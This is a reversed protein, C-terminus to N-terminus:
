MDYNTIRIVDGNETTGIKKSLVDWLLTHWCLEPPRLNGSFGYIYLDDRARTMAVYLLRFYEETDHQTVFSRIEAFEPSFGDPKHPTWIWVPMGESRDHTINYINETKSVSVTDILFVARSQLGKSGHVTVIRVGDGSDLNRKIESNGTIFWKIFHRLTGPQTREYALCITIFEELPDIVQVGLAAIINERVNHNNLVYTFFNYPGDVKARAIYDQLRTYIDSDGTKLVDLVTCKQANKDQAKRKTNETNRVACIKYVQMDNLGFLPSKLVCCLSYDDTLDTCFRILNMFDRIVPYDPLIIRDTGAVPINRRKLENTMSVALPARQQLLIMIDNPTYKKDHILNEIKDAIGSIYKKRAIATELDGASQVKHLEVIGKDHVRFCKHSNNVFGTLRAVDADGFFMDVTRLIPEVSRFSQTLPVEMIARANNSIYKSIEDRSRAFANPDAGQFGYISQKTDGVVFLSRPLGQTDGEAFFDCSLMRLLEWQLPATDQAEDVLIHSLSLDMQSLVWGMTEPNSFLRHTYLILDEFDLVNHSQKLEQYQKAFAASLDFLAITDACIKENVMSINLEFVREKEDSLYEYNLGSALPKGDKTLYAYKYEDFNITNEIYQETLNILKQLTKSPKKDSKALILIKKLNEVPKKDCIKVHLKLKKRITDVFYNRYNDFNKILFFDKYRGGIIALLDGLKYESMVGIIHDFAASTKEDNNSSNVLRMLADNLLIRQPADSILSWSPSIGAETPFRHLIEECFGHITKIKLIEPNDIYKFFIKRAHAIDAADPNQNIAIGRLLERLEDDTAMAWGRLATLIRNRMEGAAANTYTLCLIGSACSNDRFLIRLLRETLVSTKGTGANAQVWVNNTPEAAINQESSLTDKKIM